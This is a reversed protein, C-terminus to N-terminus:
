GEKGGTYIPSSQYQQLGFRALVGVAAAMPVALLMGVFGFLYGFAFLAFMLWVPHLGVSAGVLKPQLVNGEVFQGFIFVAAVAAIWPWDPWFQAIAVSGALVLGTISGIFPIFSILGALFGILLGFNLGILLLAITYYVGLLLCLMAQGRIFGSIAADIERALRRITDRHPLPVLGDVTAVLRPWDCLLYFAVVPTVVVLSFLSILGRGGSWLSHLFSTLWGVGQTVFEGVTKESDSFGEGVIRSLWPRSPDTVIQQLRRVYGPIREIFSAMQDFLIPAIMLILVVFALVFIVVIILAAVIRNMGAGELRNTLPNLLFALAAGVVFPLLIGSFLWLVAILAALAAVWFVVQRELTM